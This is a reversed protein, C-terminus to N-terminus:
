GAIKKKLSRIIGGLLPIHEYFMEGADFYDRQHTIKEEVTLVSIGSAVIRKKPRKLKVHMEWSLYAKNDVITEDTFAFAGEILNNNLQDFYAKLNKIGEIEHIPDKFVIQDSYIENLVSPHDFNMQTFYSKFKDIIPQNM